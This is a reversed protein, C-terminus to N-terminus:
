LASADAAGRSLQVIGNVSGRPGSVVTVANGTARVLLDLAPDDSGSLRLTEAGGRWAAARAAGGVVVVFRSRPTGSVVGFDRLATYARAATGPSCGVERALTRVGPMAEGESWRGAAIEQALRAALSASGM